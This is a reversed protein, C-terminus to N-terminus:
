YDQENYTDARDELDITEKIISEHEIESVQESTGFEQIQDQADMMQRGKMEEDIAEILDVQGPLVDPNTDDIFNFSLKKVRKAKKGKLSPHDFMQKVEWAQLDYKVKIGTRDIGNDLDELVMSVTITAPTTGKEQQPNNRMEVM